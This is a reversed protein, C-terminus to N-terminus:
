VCISNDFPFVKAAKQSSREIPKAQYSNHKKENEKPGGLVDLTHARGVWVLLEVLAARARHAVVLLTQRM